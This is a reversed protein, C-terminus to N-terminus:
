ICHPVYRASPVRRPVERQFEVPLGLFGNFRDFTVHAVHRVNTPWGIDMQMDETPGQCTIGSRRIAELMLALLSLDVNTSNSDRGNQTIRSSEPHEVVITDSNSAVNVLPSVFAELDEDSYPSSPSGMVEDPDVNVTLSERPSYDVDNINTINALVDMM